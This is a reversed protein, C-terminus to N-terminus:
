VGALVRRLRRSEASCPPTICGCRKPPQSCAAPAPSLLFIDLIMGPSGCRAVKGAQDAGGAKRRHSQSSFDRPQIHLLEGFVRPLQAKTMLGHLRLTSGHGGVGADSATRDRERHIYSQLRAAHNQSDRYRMFGSGGRSVHHSERVRRLQRDVDCRHHSSRTRPVLARENLAFSM